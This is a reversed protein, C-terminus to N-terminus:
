TPAQTSARPIFEAPLLITQPTLAEGQLERLLLEASQVGIAAGPLAFTTLPVEFHRVSILNDVGVLSIEHPIQRQLDRLGKYVGMAVVDNFCVAATPQAPSGVQDWIQYVATQAPQALHERPANGFEAEAFAPNETLPVLQPPLGVEHLARQYGAAREKGTSYDLLGIYVIHQHGLQLLHHTAAYGIRENDTAVIHTGKIEVNRGVLVLPVRRRRLHTLL